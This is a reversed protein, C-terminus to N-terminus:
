VGSQIREANTEAKKFYGWYLSNASMGLASATLTFRNFVRIAKLKFESIDTERWSNKWPRNKLGHTAEALLIPISTVLAFGSLGEAADRSLFSASLLDSDPHPVLEEPTIGAVLYFEVLFHLVDVMETWVDNYSRGDRLQAIQIAEVVEGVEETVRWAMERIRAQGRYSRLDVPMRPVIFDNSREIENFRDALEHQRQFIEKLRDM